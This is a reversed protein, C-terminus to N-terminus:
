SVTHHGTRFRGNSFYKPDIESLSDGGNVAVVVGAASGPGYPKWKM